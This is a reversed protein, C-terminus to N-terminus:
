TEFPEFAWKFVSIALVAVGLVTVALSRVLVGTFFTVLGVAAVAPWYSGDPVHVPAPPDDPIESVGNETWLPM